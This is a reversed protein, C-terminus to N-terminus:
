TKEIERKIQRLKQNLRHIRVRTSVPNKNLMEAIKAQPIEDIKDYKIIMKEKETFNKNLEKWLEANQEEKELTEAIDEVYRHAHITEDLPASTLNDRNQRIHRYETLALKNVTSMLWAKPNPPVGETTIKEWLLGFAEQLMDDADDPRGKLKAYCFNRIAQIHENWIQTYIEQQFDVM